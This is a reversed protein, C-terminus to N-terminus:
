TDKLLNLHTNRKPARSGTSARNKKSWTRATGHAMVRLITVHGEVKGTPPVHVYRHRGLWFVFTAIAMLVGPTGFAISPGYHSLLVPILLTAFFSGFNIAFYFLEFARPILSENSHDFQDGVHASVCPKIGGSGIAVLTLGTFLGFKTEFLALVLHGLCYVISLYLITRYKGLFRDSIYGGFLPFFIPRASSCIIPRM